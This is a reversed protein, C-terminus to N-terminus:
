GRDESLPMLVCSKPIGHELCIEETAQTLNDRELVVDIGGPAFELRVFANMETGEKDSVSSQRLETEMGKKEDGRIYGTSGTAKALLDRLHRLSKVREGNFKVLEMDSWDAYGLNSDHALVQALIVVDRQEVEGRSDDDNGSVSFSSNKSSGGGSFDSDVEDGGLMGGYRLSLYSLHDTLGGGSWAGSAQLYPGSLITFVMGGMLLYPPDNGGFHEPISPRRADVAVNVSVITGGVKSNSNNANNSYNYNNSQSSDDCVEKSDVLKGLGRQRLVDLRVTDGAFKSQVYCGLEVREGRRFPIKGDNGVSADDIRVIVDGAQLQGAAPSGPPIQKIMIGSLDRSKSRKKKKTPIQQTPQSNNENTNDKQRKRQSPQQQWQGGIMGLSRRYAENELLTGDIGLSPFGNCHRGLRGGPGSVAGNGIEVVNGCRSLNKTMRERGVQDRRVDELFHRVVTVPIVYGINEADELAMFAVGVVGGNVVDIVPGGSNGANIAADIQVTLHRGHPGGCSAYQQMEVRSVVGSTVSLSEGGTPYGLVEVESHLTPLPGFQLVSDTISDNSNNNHDGNNNNEYKEEEEDDSYDEDSEDDWFSLSEVKLLALDCEPSFADVTAVYRTGEDLDRGGNCDDEDDLGVGVFGGRRQVRVVSSCEIGHYNTLVRRGVGPVDLIFGSSTSSYQHLRQWPMLHDHETHTTYIKIINDL